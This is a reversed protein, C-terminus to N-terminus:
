VWAVQRVSRELTVRPESLDVNVLKGVRVSMVLFGRLAATVQLVLFDQHVQIVKTERPVVRGLTGLPAVLVQQAKIVRQGVLDQQVLSEM